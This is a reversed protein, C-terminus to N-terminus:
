TPHFVLGGRHPAAERFTCQAYCSRGGCEHCRQWAATVRLVTGALAVERLPRDGAARSGDRGDVAAQTVRFVAPRSKGGGHRETAEAADPGAPVSRCTM